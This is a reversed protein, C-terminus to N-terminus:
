DSSDSARHTAGAGQGRGGAHGRPSVGAAPPPGVRPRPGRRLAAFCGGREGGGGAEGGGGGGGRAGGGGAGGRSRGGGRRRSRRRRGGGGRSRGRDARAVREVGCGGAGGAVGGASRAVGVVCCGARVRLRHIRRPAAARPRPGRLRVGVIRVRRCRRAAKRGGGRGRAGDAIVAACLRHDPAARRPPLRPLRPVNAAAAGRTKASVRAAARRRWAIDGFRGSLAAAPRPACLARRLHACCQPAFRAHTLPIPHFVRHQSHARIVCESRRRLPVVPEDGIKQPGAPLAM